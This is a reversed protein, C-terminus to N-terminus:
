MFFIYTFQKRAQMEIKLCKSYYGDPLSYCSLKHYKYENKQYRQLQEKIIVFYYKVIAM